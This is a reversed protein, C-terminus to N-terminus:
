SKRKAKKKKLCLSNVSLNKRKQDEIGIINKSSYFAPLLSIMPHRRSQRNM